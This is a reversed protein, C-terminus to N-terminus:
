REGRFKRKGKEYTAEPGFHCNKLNRGGFDGQEGRQGGWWRLNMAALISSVRPTERRWSTYM